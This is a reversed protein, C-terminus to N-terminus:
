SSSDIGFAFNANQTTKEVLHEFNVQKIEAIKQATYQLNKPENPFRQQKRVPEPTLYPSDTELVLLELPVRKVFDQKNEDYTVDGDVGIFINRKLAYELLKTDPECCHFVVRGAMQPVWNEELLELLDDVAHRGHLILAKSHRVALRLQLKLFARQVRAAGKFHFYDLGTEGVAVVRPSSTLLDELQYEVKNQELNELDETPHVGVAVWVNQFDEAIGIARKSTELNTGPILFSVVGAERASNVFKAVENQLPELNLHCHTDFM